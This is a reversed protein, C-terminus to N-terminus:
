GFAAHIIQNLSPALIQVQGFGYREDGIFVMLLNLVVLHGVYILLTHRGMFKVPLLLTGVATSAKPFTVPKFFFLGTMLGFIGGLLVVMQEVSLQSIGLGSFLFYCVGIAFLFGFYALPKITLGEKHRRMYGYVTFMMGLTGYEFLMISPFSLFFLIFFMGAFSEYSQLAGVMLRDIWLRALALTFLINLPLIYYGSVLVSLAVVFWGLWIVGQVQRTNAYGILFFWIPVSLRGIVRFWEEDPFFFHGAHDVFMLMLALSKLLDYSTLASPLSQERSFLRKSFSFIASAM